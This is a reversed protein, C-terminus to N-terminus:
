DMENVKNQLQDLIDLVENSTSKMHDANKEYQRATENISSINITIIEIANNQEAVSHNIEEAREKISTTRSNVSKQIDRQQQIHRLTQEAIEQFNNMTELISQTLTVINGTKEYGEDVNQKNSTIIEEINKLSSTSEDALKQVEDAVVAFGRGSEGARAAEISANLSLLQIKDFVDNIIAVVDTISDSSVKIQNIKQNVDNIAGQSEKASSLISNFHKAIIKSDSEISNTKNSLETIEEFLNQIM